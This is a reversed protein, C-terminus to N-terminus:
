DQPLFALPDTTRTLPRHRTRLAGKPRCGPHWTRVNGTCQVPCADPDTEARFLWVAEQLALSLIARERPAIIRSRSRYRVIGVALKRQM